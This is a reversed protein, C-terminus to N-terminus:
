RERLNLLEACRARALDRTSQVPSHLATDCADVIHGDRKFGHPPKTVVDARLERIQDDTITDLRDIM